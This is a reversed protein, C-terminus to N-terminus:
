ARCFISRSGKKARKLGNRFSHSVMDIAARSGLYSGGIGIVLLVDSDSKIKEASKKIRDFEEKDYNKPLDIWGLFTNGLGTKNHLMDHAVDVYPQMVDIENQCFFETAKSYDFNIKGM